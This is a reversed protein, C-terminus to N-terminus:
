RLDFMDIQEDKPFNDTPVLVKFIKGTDGTGLGRVNGRGEIDKRAMAESEYPGFLFQGVGNYNMGLVYVDRERRANDILKWVDEALDDVSEAPQELLKILADMEKKRQRM